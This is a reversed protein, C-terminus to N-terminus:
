RCLNLLWFEEGGGTGERAWCQKASLRDGQRVLLQGGRGLRSKLCCTELVCGILASKNVSVRSDFCNALLTLYVDKDDLQDRSSDRLLDVEEAFLYRANWEM